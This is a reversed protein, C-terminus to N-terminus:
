RRLTRLFSEFHNLESEPATSSQKLKKSIAALNKTTLFKGADHHLVKLHKIREDISNATKAMRSIAPSPSQKLDFQRISKIDEAISVYLDRLNNEPLLVHTFSVKGMVYETTAEGSDRMHKNASFLFAKAWKATEIESLTVLGTQSKTLLRIETSALRGSYNANKIKEIYQACFDISPRAQRLPEILSQWHDCKHKAAEVAMKDTELEVYRNFQQTLEKFEVGFEDAGCVNGINTEIGDTTRVIYGLKHPQNCGKLGCHIEDKFRYYGIIEELKHNDKIIKKAFNARNLIEDWSDIKKGGAETRLFIM